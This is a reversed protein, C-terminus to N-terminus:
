VREALAMLRDSEEPVNEVLRAAALVPMWVLIDDRRLGSVAGYVALYADALEPLRAGILLHSRAVDAAPPGSSADLWDVVMAREPTGLLNYPHFDGHCIRDGGPLAALADLLRRQLDPALDARGIKQALRSKLDPLGFVSARHMQLHLGAMAELCAGTRERDALMAEAFTAGAARDMVLGWREGFRQVAHAAPAPLRAEAVIALNAAERFAATGPVGPPYLNVVQAGYAFV